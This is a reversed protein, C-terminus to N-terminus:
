SIKLCDPYIGSVIISNILFSIHHSAITPIEKLFRSSIGDVGATNSAKLSTIIKHTEEIKILPLKFTTDPKDVIKGLIEIPDIKSETFTNKIREYKKYFWDNMLNSIKAPSTINKDEEKIETPTAREDKRVLSKWM